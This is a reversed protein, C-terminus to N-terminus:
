QREGAPRANPLPLTVDVQWGCPQRRRAYVSGGFAAARERLGVLGFGGGSRSLSATDGPRGQGDDSISVHVASQKQNIVIDARTAGTAHRHINTLAEQTVRHVAQQHPKPLHGEPLTLTAILGTNRAFRDVMEQLDAPWDAADRPPVQQQGPAKLVSVLCRMSELAEIGTREIAILAARAAAPDTETILSAAQAAVVIGTVHHAVEDHLDRAIDRREDDRAKLLAQAARVDDAHRLLGIASVVVVLITALLSFLLTDPGRLRWPALVLGAALALLAPSDRAGAWRRSLLGLLMALTVTELLGETADQRAVALRVVATLTLSAVGLVLGAKILQRHAAHQRRAVVLVTMAALSFSVGLVPWAGTGRVSVIDLLAILALVAAVGVAAFTRM